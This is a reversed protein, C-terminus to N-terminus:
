RSASAPVSAGARPHSARSSSSTRVHRRTHGPPLTARVCRECQQWERGECDGGGRPVCKPHMAIPCTECCLLKPPEDEAVHKCTGGMLVACCEQPPTCAARPRMAPPRTHSAACRTTATRTTLSASPGASTRRIKRRTKTCSRFRRRAPHSGACMREGPLGPMEVRLPRPHYTSLPPCAPPAHGGVDSRAAHSRM